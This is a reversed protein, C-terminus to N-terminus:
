APRPPLVWVKRDIEGLRKREVDRALQRADPDSVLDERRISLRPASPSSDNPAPRERNPSTPPTFDPRAWPPLLSADTKDPDPNGAINPRTLRSYFLSRDGQLTSNTQGNADTHERTRYWRGSPDVVTTTTTESGDVRTRSHTSSVTGDSEIHRDTTVVSGDRHLTRTRVSDGNPSNETYSQGPVPASDKSDGTQSIGGFLAGRDTSPSLPNRQNPTKSGSVDRLEDGRTDERGRGLQDLPSPGRGLAPHSAGPREFTDKAFNAVEALERLGGSVLRDASGALRADSVPAIKSNRVQLHPSLKLM